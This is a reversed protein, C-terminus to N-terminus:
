CNNEGILLLCTHMFILEEYEILDSGNYKECIQKINSLGYGTKLGIRSTSLFKGNEYRINKYSNEVNIILKYTDQKIKINIFKDDADKSANIANDLLNGLLISLDIDSITSKLDGQIICKIDIDLSKAISIKENIIYNVIENNTYIFSSKPLLDNLYNKAQDTKNSTILKNIVLDHNEMDHKLRNIEDIKKNLLNLLKDEYKRSELLIEQQIIKKYDKTINLYIRTALICITIFISISIIVTYYSISSKSIYLTIIIEPLIISLLMLLLILKTQSSSMVEQSRCKRLCLYEILLVLKQFCVVIFYENSLTSISKFINISLFSAIIGVSMNILFLNLYSFLIVIIQKDISGTLNLRSYIILLIILILSLYMPPYIYYHLAYSIITMAVCVLFEINYKKEFYLSIFKILLFNEAFSILLDLIYLNDLIINSM